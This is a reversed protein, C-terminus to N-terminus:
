TDQTSLLDTSAVEFRKKPLPRLLHSLGELRQRGAVDPGHLLWPENAVQSLLLDDLALFTVVPHELPVGIPCSRCLLLGPPLLPLWDPPSVGAGGRVYENLGFPRYAISKQVPKTATIKRIM